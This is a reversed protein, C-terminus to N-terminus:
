GSQRVKGPAPKGKAAGPRQKGLVQRTIVGSQARAREATITGTIEDLSQILNPFGCDIDDM